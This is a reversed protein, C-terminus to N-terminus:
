NVTLSILIFSILEQFLGNELDQILKCGFYIFAHVLILIFMVVISFMYIFQKQIYCMLIFVIIFAFIILNWVRLLSIFAILEQFYGNELDQILKCGFCTFAHVLILIFMVVFPFMFIFQKQTYCMLIFVVIFAFIILNWIRLIWQHLYVHSYLCSYLYSHM